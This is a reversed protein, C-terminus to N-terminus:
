RAPFFPFLRRIEEANPRHGYESIEFAEAYQIAKGREPGYLEVLKDRYQTATSAFRKRFGERVQDRRRAKGAEDAPMLQPGGNAGGEYFQSPLAAVVALKKEIVDDIGVVID